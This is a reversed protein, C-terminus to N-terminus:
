PLYDEITKISFFKVIFYIKTIFGWHTISSMSSPSCHNQKTKQSWYYYLLQHRDIWPQKKSICFVRFIYVQALFLLKKVLIKEDLKQGWFFFGAIFLSYNLNFYTDKYGNKLSKEELGLPTSGGEPLKSLPPIM